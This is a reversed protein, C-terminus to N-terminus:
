TPYPTISIPLGGDPVVATTERLYVGVSKQLAIDAVPYAYRM